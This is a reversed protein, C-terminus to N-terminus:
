PTIVVMEGSVSITHSAGDQQDRLYPTFGVMRGSVQNHHPAWWRVLCQYQILSVM